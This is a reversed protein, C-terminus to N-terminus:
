WLEKQQNLTSILALDLCIKRLLFQMNMQLLIFFIELLVM